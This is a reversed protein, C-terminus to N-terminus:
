FIREFRDGNFQCVSGDGMAFWLEGQKSLYIQWIHHTTLGDKLTYNTMSKTTRDYKWAGTDRDGFWINGEKDEGISFVHELSGEPSRYGGSRGSNPSILGQEASFNITKEGDYRLVGIGNNGIWLIGKSDEFISRVHLYGTMQSLGLYGDDIITFDKGDYGFVGGYTGFWIRDNKGRVFPTSVSIYNEYGEKQEIPFTHYTLPMGNYRYVGPQGEKENYGTGEDGKFWLDTPTSAWNEKNTYDKTTPTIIEEGNYYSIGHGGEFWVNGNADEYLSRVQNDSLGHDVTFYTFKGNAYKCVGEQHSAFWINGHRDELISRIGTTYELYKIVTPKITTDKPNSISSSTAQKSVNKSNCSICISILFILYFTSVFKYM